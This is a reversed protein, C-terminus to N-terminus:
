GFVKRAMPEIDGYVKFTERNDLLVMVCPEPSVAGRGPACERLSIIAEPRTFVRHGWLDRMEVCGDIPSRDAASNM